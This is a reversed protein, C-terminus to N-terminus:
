CEANLWQTSRRAILLSGHAILHCTGASQEDEISAVRLQIPQNSIAEFVHKSAVLGCVNEITDLLVRGGVLDLTKKVAAFRSERAECVVGNVLINGFLVISHRNACDKAASSSACGRVLKIFLTKL